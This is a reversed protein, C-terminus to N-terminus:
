PGGGSLAGWGRNVGFRVGFLTGGNAQIELELARGGLRYTPEEIRWGSLPIGMVVGERTCGSERSVGVRVVFRPVKEHEPALPSYRAVGLSGEGGSRRRDM